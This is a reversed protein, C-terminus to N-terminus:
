QVAVRTASSGEAIPENSVAFFSSILVVAAVAVVGLFLAMVAALGRATLQWDGVSIGIPATASRPRPAGVPEVVPAVPALQLSEEVIPLQVVRALHATPRVHQWQSRKRSPAAIVLDDVLLASM